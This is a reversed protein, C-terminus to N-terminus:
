SVRGDATSVASARASESTESPAFSYPASQQLKGIPFTPSLFFTCGFAPLCASHFLPYTECHRLCTPTTGLAVSATRCV